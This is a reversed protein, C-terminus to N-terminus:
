WLMSRMRRTHPLSHATMAACSTPALQWGWLYAARMSQKLPVAGGRELRTCTTTKPGKHLTVVMMPCGDVGRHVASRMGSKAEAQTHQMNFPICWCAFVM